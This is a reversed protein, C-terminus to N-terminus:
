AAAALGALKLAKKGGAAVASNAANQASTRGTNGMLRAVFKQGGSMDEFRLRKANQELQLRKAYTQLDQDSLSKFGSKKSIQGIERARVAERAAPHGSGGKTVLRKSGPVRSDRVIVEQPGVTAKRRIGWKQGKVGFHSLYGEVFLADQIEKTDKTGSRSLIYDVAEIGRGLIVPHMEDAIVDSTDM